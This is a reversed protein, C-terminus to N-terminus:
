PELPIWECAVGTINARGTGRFRFAATELLRNVFFSKSLTPGGPYVLGSNYTLGTNYKTTITMDLQTSRKLKVGENIIVDFDVVGANGAERFYVRAHKVDKNRGQLSMDEDTPRMDYPATKMEWSIATGDDDDGTNGKYVYGGTSGLFDYEDGSVRFSAGYNVTAAYEDFWLDNTQWNWVLVTDHSSSGTKSMLTRVQHDKERVWSMAYQLRSQSLDSNWDDQIPETVKRVDMGTGSSSPLVVYAGDKAVVWTFEPRSLISNRAIPAFGRYSENEILRLDISGSNFELMCPYVGDEKFVLLRGFNDSAGVIPAGEDYVEFRNTDPWVTPDIVFVDTNLDCWRVRTPFVTGNEKTHLALLINRHVEFDKCYDGAATAFPITAPLVAANGTSTVRFPRTTGGTAYVYNDIFAFRYRVDASNAVEATGTVPSRTTGDDTYVKTGAVEIQLETANTFKQQLLGTVPVAVSTETIQTSNYKEYGYRRQATGQPTLNVNKLTECDGIGLRPDPYKFTKQGRIRVIPSARLSRSTRDQPM